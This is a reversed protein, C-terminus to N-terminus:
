RENDNDFAMYCIDKVLEIGMKKILSERFYLTVPIKKDSIKKRGAKKRFGGQTKKM